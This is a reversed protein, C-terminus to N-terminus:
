LESRGQIHRIDTAQDRWFSDEAINTAHDGVRELARGVFILDLYSPLNEPDASARVVLREGINTTLVDLEKDRPKLTQALACDREAFARISDRFIALALRYAPELLAVESVLSRDNLRKARRAITVSRDGVRELNTSVKMASIVERMDSAVPHFRILLAVGEEDVQKELTDIEEDEAIVLDCLEGNRTLFGEFATQLIRDTLSSMMLVDNRLGYLAADYSSSIHKTPEPM